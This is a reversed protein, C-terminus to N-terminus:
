LLPHETAAPLKFPHDHHQPRCKRIRDLEKWSRLMAFEMCARSITLRPSVMGAEAWSLLMTAPRRRRTGGRRHGAGTAAAHKGCSVWFRIACSSGSQIANRLTPIRLHANAGVRLPRGASVRLEPNALSRFPRGPAWRSRSNGPLFQGAGPLLSRIPGILRKTRAIYEFGPPRRM